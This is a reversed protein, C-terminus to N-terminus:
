FQLSMELTVRDDNKGSASSGGDYYEYSLTLYTQTFAQWKIAPTVAWRDDNANSIDPDLYDCRLVGVLKDRIINVNGEIWVGWFQLNTREAVAKADLNAIHTGWIYEGYIVFPKGDLSMDPVSAQPVDPYKFYVAYREITRAHKKGGSAFSTGGSATDNGTSPALYYGAGVVGLERPLTYQARFVIDKNQDNDTGGATRWPGAGNYVQPTFLFPGVKVNAAIGLQRDRIIQKDLEVGRILATNTTTRGGYIWSQNDDYGYYGFWPMIHGIMLGTYGTAALEGEKHIDVWVNGMDQANSHYLPLEAYFSINKHMEADVFFEVEYLQFGPSGATTDFNQRYRVNIDGGINLEGARAFLPLTMGLALASVLVLIRYKM